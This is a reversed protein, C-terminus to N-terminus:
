LFQPDTKLKLVWVIQCGAYQQQCELCGIIKNPSALIICIFIVFFYYGSLHPEPVRVQLWTHEYVTSLLIERM